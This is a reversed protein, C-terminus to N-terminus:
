AGGKMQKAVAQLHKLYARQARVEVGAPSQPTEQGEPRPESSARLRSSSGSVPRAQVLGTEIQSQSRLPRRPSVAPKAAPPKERPSWSKRPVAAGEAVRLCPSLPVHPAPELPKARSTGIVVRHTYSACSRASGKAPMSEQPKQEPAKRSSSSASSAPLAEEQQGRSDLEKQLILVQRRLEQTERQFKQGLAQRGKKEAEVEEKSRALQEMLTRERLESQRLLDRLRDQENKSLRREQQLQVELLRRELDAVHGQKDLRRRLRAREERMERALRTTVALRLPPYRAAKSRSRRRYDERASEAPTEVQAECEGSPGDAEEGAAGLEKPTRGQSSLAAVEPRRTSGSSSGASAGHLETTDQESAEGLLDLQILPVSVAVETVGFM